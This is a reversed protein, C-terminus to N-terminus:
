KLSANKSLSAAPTVSITFPFSITSDSNVTTAGQLPNAFYQSGAIANIWAESITLSPGPGTVALQITGIAAATTATSSGASSGPTTTTTNGSASTSGAAAAQAAGDFAQVEAGAPTIAILDNLVVPWDIATDLVSARRAVGQTYADNAAVVLDFKPVQSNLSSIQSQLTDVHNQTNRVQLFKWAGFAVLLILVAACVAFTRQQIRGMRAREAVEPPLLNFKKVAKDPEPLALGIPTALIPGVEATQEENLGLKSTDLRELPSVALVPLRSEAELMPVLGHLASGGGTVLVRAV